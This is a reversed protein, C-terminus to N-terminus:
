RQALFSEIEFILRRDAEPYKSDGAALSAKKTDRMWALYSPPIEKFAKGKHKGFNITCLGYDPKWHKPNQQVGKSSVAGFIEELEIATFGRNRLSEIFMRAGNAIEGDAAGSDMMLWLLKRERDTLQLM